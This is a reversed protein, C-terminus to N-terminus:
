VLRDVAAKHDETLIAAYHRMVTAVDDGLLDAVTVVPVGARILNTAFTKRFTHVTTRTQLTTHLEPTGSITLKLHPYRKNVRRIARQLARLVPRKKGGLWDRRILFPSQDANALLAIVAEQALANLPIERDRDNKTDVLLLREPRGTSESFAIREKLLDSLEMTRLGTNAFLIWIPREYDGSCELIANMEEQSYARPRMLNRKKKRSALPPFPNKLISPDDRLLDLAFLKKVPGNQMMVGAGEHHEAVYRLRREALEPTWQNAYPRGYQDNWKLFREIVGRFREQSSPELKVFSSHQFYHEALDRVTRDMAQGPIRQGRLRANEIQARENLCEREYGQADSKNYGEAFLFTRKQGSLIEDVHGNKKRYVRVRVQWGAVKGDQGTVRHISMSIVVSELSHEPESM